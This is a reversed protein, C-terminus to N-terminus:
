KSTQFLTFTHDYVHIRDGSTNHVWARLGSYTGIPVEGTLLLTQYVTNSTTSSRGESSVITVWSATVFNYAELGGRIYAASSTQPKYVFKYIAIISASNTDTAFVSGISGTQYFEGWHNNEMYFLESTWSDTPPPTVASDHDTGSINSAPWFNTVSLSNKTIRDVNLTGTLTAADVNKDYSTGNWKYYTKDLTWYIFNTLFTTPLSAGTWIAVPELGLGFKSLIIASDGVHDSDIVPVRDLHVVGDEDVVPLITGTTDQVVTNDPSLVLTTTGQQLGRSVQRAKLAQKAINISTLNSLPM